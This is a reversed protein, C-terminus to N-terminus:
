SEKRQNLEKLRAAALDTFASRPLDSKVQRYFEAAADRTAPDASLRDAQRVIGLAARDIEAQVFDDAHRRTKRTSAIPRERELKLALALKADAERGLTAVDRRLEAADVKKAVLRNERYVSSSIGVIAGIMLLAVAAVRKRRRSRVIGPVRMALDMAQVPAAIQSDTQRLLEELEDSM